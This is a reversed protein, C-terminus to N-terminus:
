CLDGRGFFWTNTEGSSEMRNSPLPIAIGCSKPGDCSRSKSHWPWPEAHGHSACSMGVCPRPSQGGPAMPPAIKAEIPIRVFEAVGVITASSTLIRIRDAGCVRAYLELHRRAMLEATHEALIMERGRRGCQDALAPDCTLEALKDALSRPDLPDCLLGGGSREILEPFTGHCPLVVPVGSAMAELVSIGKSEHYVTPVSM